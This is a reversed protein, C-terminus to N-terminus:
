NGLKNKLQAEAPPVLFVDRNIAFGQLFAATVDLSHISWHHAVSIASVLRICEKSVTPSDTRIESTDEEFGRAVVRAKMVNKDAVDKYTIM